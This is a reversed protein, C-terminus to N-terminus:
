VQIYQVGGSKAGSWGSGTMEHQLGFWVMRLILFLNKM